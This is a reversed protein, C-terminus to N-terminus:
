PVLIGSAARTIAMASLRSAMSDLLVWRLLTEHEAAQASTVQWAPRCNSGLM